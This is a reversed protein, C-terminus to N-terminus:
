DSSNHTLRFSYYNLIELSHDLMGVKTYEKQFVPFNNLINTVFIQSFFCIGVFFILILVITGVMKSYSVTFDLNVKKDEKNEKLRTEESIMAENVTETDKETVPDKKGDFDLSLM